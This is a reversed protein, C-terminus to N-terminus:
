RNVKNEWCLLLSVLRLESSGLGLDYILVTNNPLVKGFHNVFGVAQSEQGNLVYTVIVPLSTNRWIGKPYLRPQSDFGIQTLYKEDAVLTKTEADRLTDKIVLLLLIFLSVIACYKTPSINRSFITYYLRRM